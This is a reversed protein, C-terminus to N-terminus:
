WSNEYTYLNIFYYTLVSSKTCFCLIDNKTNWLTCCRWNTSFCEINKNKAVTANRLPTPTLRRPPAMKPSVKKLKIKMIKASGELYWHYNNLTACTTFLFHAISTCERYKKTNKKKLISKGFIHKHIQLIGWPLAGRALCKNKRHLNSFSYVKTIELTREM